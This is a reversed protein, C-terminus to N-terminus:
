GNLSISLPVWIWSCTTHSLLADPRRKARSPTVPLTFTSRVGSTATRSAAASPVDSFRPERTTALLSEGSAQRMTCRAIIAPRVEVPM